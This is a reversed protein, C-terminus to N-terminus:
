IGTVVAVNPAFPLSVPSLPPSPDSCVILLSHQWLDITRCSAPSSESSLGVFIDLTTLIYLQQEFIAGRTHM